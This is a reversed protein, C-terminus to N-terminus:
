QDFPMTHISNEMAYTFPRVTIEVKQCSERVHLVTAHATFVIRVINSISATYWRNDVKIDDPHFKIIIGVAITLPVLEQKM